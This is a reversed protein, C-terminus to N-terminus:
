AANPQHTRGSRGGGSKGEEKEFAPNCVQSKKGKGRYKKKFM